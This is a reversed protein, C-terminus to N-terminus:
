EPGHGLLQLEEGWKRNGNGEKLQVSEISLSPHDGLAKVLGKTEPAGFIRGRGPCLIAQLPCLRQAHMSM